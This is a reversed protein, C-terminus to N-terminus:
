DDAKAYLHAAERLAFKDFPTQLNTRPLRRERPTSKRPPEETWSRLLNGLGYAPQLASKYHPRAAIPIIRLRGLREEFVGLAQELSHLINTAKEQGIRDLALDWKTVLVDVKADPDFMREEFCRRMLLLANARTLGSLHNSALRGGDVLHAFHDARRYITLARLAIASDLADEYHEGSMDALLLQRIPSSLDQDRLKMHYFLIGEQHRTRLTVPKEGGSAARSDFCREEFGILTRSGSGVYGAFPARQFGDHLSALLTTKGCKPAGVLVVIPAGSARLVESADVEGLPKGLPLNVLEDSAGAKEPPQMAPSAPGTPPMTTV